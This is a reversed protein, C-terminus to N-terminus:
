HSTVWASCIIEKQGWCKIYGCIKAKEFTFSFHECEYWFWFLGTRHKFGKGCAFCAMKLRHKHCQYAFIKGEKEEWWQSEARHVHRGDMSVRLVENKVDCDIFHFLSNSLPDSM